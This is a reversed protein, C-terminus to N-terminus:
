APTRYLVVTGLMKSWVLGSRFHLQRLWAGEGQVDPDTNYQRFTMKSIILELLAHAIRIQQYDLRMM